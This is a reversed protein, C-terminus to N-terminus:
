DNKFVKKHRCTLDTLCIAETPRIQWKELKEIEEAQEKLKILLQQEAKFHKCGEPDPCPLGSAPQAPEQSDPNVSKWKGGELQEWNPSEKPCEKLHNSQEAVKIVKGCDMCICTECPKLLAIAKVLYRHAHCFSLPPRIRIEAEEILAIAAKQNDIM